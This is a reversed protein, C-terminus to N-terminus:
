PPNGGTGALIGGDTPVIRRVYKVTGVHSATTLYSRRSRERGREPQDELLRLIADLVRDRQPSEDDLQDAPLLPRCHRGVHPAIGALPRHPLVGLSTLPPAPCYKASRGIITARRSGPLSRRVHGPRSQVPQPRQM